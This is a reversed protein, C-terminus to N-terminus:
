NDRSMGLSKECSWPPSGENLKSSMNEEDEEMRAYGDLRRSVTADSDHARADLCSEVSSSLLLENRSRCHCPERGIYAHQTIQSVLVGSSESGFRKLRGFGRCGLSFGLACPRLNWLTWLHARWLETICGTLKKSCSSM